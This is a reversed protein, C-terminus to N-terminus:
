SRRFRYVHKAVVTWFSEFTEGKFIYRGPLYPLSITDWRFANKLKWFAESNKWLVFQVVDNNQNIWIEAGELCLFDRNLKMKFSFEEKARLLVKEEEEFLELEVAPRILFLHLKNLFREYDSLSFVFEKLPVKKGSERWNKWFVKDGVFEVTVNVDACGKCGCFCIFLWVDGEKKLEEYYRKGSFPSFAPFMNEYGLARHVMGFLSEGNLFLDVPDEAYCHSLEIDLESLVELDFPRFDITDM